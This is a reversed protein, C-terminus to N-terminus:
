LRKKANYPMPLFSSLRLSDSERAIVVPPPTEPKIKKIRESRCFGSVICYYRPDNFVM